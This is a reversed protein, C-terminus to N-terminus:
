KISRTYNFAEEFDKFIDEASVYIIKKRGKEYLYVSYCPPLGIASERKESIVAKVIKQKCAVYYVLEGINFNSCRRNQIKFAESRM